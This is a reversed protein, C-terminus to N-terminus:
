VGTNTKSEIQFHFGLRINHDNHPHTLCLFELHQIQQNLLFQLTFNTELNPLSSAYCDVVGWNGNPLQVVISEGIAGSGIVHIVLNSSKKKTTM